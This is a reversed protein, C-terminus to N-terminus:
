QFTKLLLMISVQGQQDSDAMRFMESTRIKRKEMSEKVEKIVKQRGQPTLHDQNKEGRGKEESILKSSDESKEKVDFQHEGPVQRKRFYDICDAVDKTRVKGDGSDLLAALKIADSRLKFQFISELKPM